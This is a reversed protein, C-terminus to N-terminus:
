KKVRGISVEKRTETDSHINRQGCVSGNIMIFFTYLDNPRTEIYIHNDICKMIILAKISLALRSSDVENFGTNLLRSPVIFARNNIYM